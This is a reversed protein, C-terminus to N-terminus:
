ILYSMLVGLIPYITEKAGMCLKPLGLSIIGDFENSSIFGKIPQGFYIKQGVHFVLPVGSKLWNKINSYEGDKQAYNNCIAINFKNKDLICQNVEIASFPFPKLAVLYDYANEGYVNFEISSMIKTKKYETKYAPATGFVDYKRIPPDFCSNADGKTYVFENDIDIVRHLMTKGGIDFLVVDGYDINAIQRIEISDGSHILPLM